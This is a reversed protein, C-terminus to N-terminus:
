TDPYAKQAFGIELNVQCRLQQGTKADQRNGPNQKDREQPQDNINFRRPRRFELNETGQYTVGRQKEGFRNRQEKKHPNAKAETELGYWNEANRKQYGTPQIRQVVPGENEGGTENDDNTRECGDKVFPPGVFRLTIGRILNPGNTADTGLNRSDIL